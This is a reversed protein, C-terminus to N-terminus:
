RSVSWAEAWEGRPSVPEGVQNVAHIYTRGAASRLVAGVRVPWYDRFDPHFEFFLRGVQLDTGAFGEAKLMEEFRSQLAASALKLPESMRAEEPLYQPSVLDVEISTSGVGETVQVLHPHLYSLSSAAHHAISHCVSNLRKHSPM